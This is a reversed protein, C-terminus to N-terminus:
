DAIRGRESCGCHAHLEAGQKELEKMRAIIDQEGERAGFPKRGECSGTKARM